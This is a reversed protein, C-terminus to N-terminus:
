RGAHAAEGAELVLVRDRLEGNQKELAAIRDNLPALAAKLVDVIGAAIVAQEQKTM